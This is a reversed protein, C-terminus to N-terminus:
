PWPKELPLLKMFEAIMHEECEGAYRGGIFLTLVEEYFLRWSEQEQGPKIPYFLANNAKAAALDGPADGIMLIHDNPYKGNVVQALQEKKGGMEQGAVWTMLPLLAVHSWEQELAKFPTASVVMLDALSHAKQLSERVFPFPENGQVIEAVLRNSSEGWELVQRLFPTDNRNAIYERLSANSLPVGSNVYEKLDGCDPIEVGSAKVEPRERLYDFTHIIAHFRNSGRLQSYLNVFEATETYYSAIKEFSWIKIAQPIFIRKHKLDMTDFACGDSDVGIFFDHQPISHKLLEIKNM